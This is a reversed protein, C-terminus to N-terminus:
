SKALRNGQIGHRSPQFRHNPRRDLNRLSRWHTLPPLTRCGHGPHVRSCRRADPNLAVPAFESEKSKSFKTMLNVLLLQPNDTTFYFFSDLVAM